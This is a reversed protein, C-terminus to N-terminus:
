ADAARRTSFANQPAARWMARGYASELEDGNGSFATAPETGVLRGANLMAVRDAYAVSQVLDHTILLVGCGADALDRLSRLIIETNEPDLGSTPEDLLLM